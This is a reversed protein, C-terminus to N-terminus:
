WGLFQMGLGAFLIIAGAILHMYKEHKKFNLFSFGKYGLYVTILM